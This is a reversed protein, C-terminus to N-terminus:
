LEEPNKMLFAPTGEGVWAGLTNFRYYEMAIDAPDEDPHPECSCDEEMVKLVCERDYVIFRANFREALGMVCQDFRSRPEMFLVRDEPDLTEFLAEFFKEPVGM